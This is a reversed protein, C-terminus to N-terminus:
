RPYVGNGTGGTIEPMCMDYRQIKNGSIEFLVTAVINEKEDQAMLVCDRGTDTKGLEAYVRSGSDKVTAMKPVLYAEIAERGELEEFVWQSAYCADEALLHLYEGCDLRNWARAYATAAERETLVTSEHTTM